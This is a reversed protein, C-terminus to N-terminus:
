PFVLLVKSASVVVTQLREVLVLDLIEPNRLQLQLDLYMQLHPLRHIIEMPNRNMPGIKELLHGQGRFEAFVAQIAKNDDHNELLVAAAMLATAM